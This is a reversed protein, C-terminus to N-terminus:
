FRLRGAVARHLDTPGDLRSRCVANKKVDHWVLADPNLEPSYPPPFYLRWKREQTEIYHKVTKARRAPHGDVILFVPHRQAHTLRTLFTILVRADVWGQCVYSAAGRAPKRSARARLATYMLAACKHISDRRYETRPARM